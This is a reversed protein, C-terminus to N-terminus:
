AGSASVTRSAARRAVEVRNRGNQKARYLAKDAAKYVQQPSFGEPAEAMGISVTVKVAEHQPNRGPKHFRRREERKRKSREPGRVHFVDEEISQRLKEVHSLSERVSRGKFVVVFEEGGCRFAAGGGSVGALQSAVKRLVQDGVDHGYTDNFSKFHDVDVVAISYTERLTAFTENLARRGRIGTLEDFYAIRYSREILAVSLVVGIVGLLPIQKHPFTLMFVAVCAAWFMGSSVPDRRAILTVLVFCCAVAAIAIRLDFRFPGALAALTVPSYHALLFLSGLSLTLWVCWIGVVELDISSDTITTIFAVDMALLAAMWLLANSPLDAMQPVAALSILTIGALLSRVDRFRVAVACLVVSVIPVGILVASDFNRGFTIPLSVVASLLLATGGIVASQRLFGM